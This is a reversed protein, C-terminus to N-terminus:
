AQRPDDVDYVVAEIKFFRYPSDWPVIMEYITANPNTPHPQFSTPYNFSVSQWASGLDAKALIMTGYGNYNRHVWRLKLGQATSETAILSGGPVLPDGAFVFEAANSMGDGDPDANKDANAGNLGASGVWSLFSPMIFGLVRVSAPLSYNSADAGTLSLGTITAWIRQYTDGVIESPGASDFTGSWGTPILPGYDATPDGEGLPDGESYYLQGLRVEDGILVGDIPGDYTQITQVATTGNYLSRVQALKSSVDVQKPTIEFDESKTGSYNPDASSAIVSYTGARSPAISNSYITAGRGTYSVSFNTARPSTVTFTKPSASYVLDSPPTIIIESEGLPEPGMAPSIIFQNKKINQAQVSFGTVLLVVFLRNVLVNFCEGGQKEVWAKHHSKSIKPNLGQPIDDRNEVPIM